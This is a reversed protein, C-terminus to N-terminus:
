QASPANVSPHRGLPGAQAFRIDTVHPNSTQYQWIGEQPSLRPAYVPFQEQRVRAAAGDLFRSSWAAATFRRAVCVMLLKGPIHRLPHHLFRSRRLGHGHPRPSPFIADRATWGASSRSISKRSSTRASPRPADNRSRRCSSSGARMSPCRRIGERQAVRNSPRGRALARYPPSSPAPGGPSARPASSPTARRTFPSAAARGTRM